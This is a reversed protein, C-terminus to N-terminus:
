SKQSRKWILYVRQDVTARSLPSTSSRSNAPSANASSPSLNVAAVRGLRGGLPDPSVALLAEVVSSTREATKPPAAPVPRSAVLFGVLAFFISSSRPPV